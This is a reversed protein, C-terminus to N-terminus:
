YSINFLNRSYNPKDEHTLERTSFLHGANRKLNSCFRFAKQNIINATGSNKGFDRGANRMEHTTYWTVGNFLGFANNGLERMERYISKRLSKMSSSRPNDKVLMMHIERILREVTDETVKVSDMGDFSDYLLNKSKKYNAIIVNVEELEFEIESTHKQQYVKLTSYFQNMCRILTCGTGVYFPRTGDHSNGIILYEQMPFSNLKLLPNINQLFAVVTKGGNFEDYGRLKFLGTATISDVLNMLRQNSLPCYEKSVIGMLERNDSRVLANRTKSVQDSIIIPEV